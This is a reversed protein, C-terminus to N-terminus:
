RSAREIDGVLRGYSSEDLLDVGLVATDVHQDVAGAVREGARELLHLEVFQAMEEFGIHNGCEM